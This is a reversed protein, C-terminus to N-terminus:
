RRRRPQPQYTAFAREYRDELRRVQDYSRQMAELTAQLQFIRENMADARKDEEGAATAVVGRLVEIAQRGEELEKTM